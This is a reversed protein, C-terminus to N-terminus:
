ASVRLGSQAELWKLDDPNLQGYYSGELKFVVLEDNNDIYPKIHEFIKKASLSSEVIWSSTTNHWYTGSLSKIAAYLQDYNKGTKHLRYSIVHHM